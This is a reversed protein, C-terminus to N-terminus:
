EVVVLETGQAFFLRAPKTAVNQIEYLNGTLIETLV